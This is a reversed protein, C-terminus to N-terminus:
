LKREDEEEEEEEQENRKRRKRRKKEEERENQKRREEEERENRKRRKRREKEEEEEEEEKEEQILSLKNVDCVMVIIYECSVVLLYDRRIKDALENEGMRRLAAQLVPWSPVGKQLVCDQQNLWASLMEMKCDDTQDHQDSRIKTLTPYHLGLELGLRKWDTVNCVVRM